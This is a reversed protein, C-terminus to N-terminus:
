GPRPEKTCRWPMGGRAYLFTDLEAASPWFQKYTDSCGSALLKDPELRTDDVILLPKAFTPQVVTLRVIGLSALGNNDTAEIYLFHDGPVLSTLRCALTLPSPRSWHKLDTDEDARPTADTINALDLSWRYSSIASGQTAFAEWNFDVPTGAPM